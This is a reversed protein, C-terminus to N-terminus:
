IEHTIKKFLKWFENRIWREGYDPHSFSADDIIASIEDQPIKRGYEDISKRIDSELEDICELQEKSYVNQIDGTHMIDLGLTSLSDEYIRIAVSSHTSTAVSDHNVKAYAITLRYLAGLERNTIPKGDAEVTNKRVEAYYKSITNIASEDLKPNVNLKTYNVYKRITEADLLDYGNNEKTKTLVKRALQLDLDYDVKDRLLYVLDFRSLTTDPIDVQDAFSKDDRWRGYEPNAAALVSTRATMTQVLGAKAVSVSQNEMPENCAEMTDKSTKDFEDITLLGNDALVMSGAEMTFTGTLDDKVASATIGAKSTGAGNSKIAKPAVRRILELIRSKGIGPEGLLLIHINHRETSIDVIDDHSSRDGEFLQLVIGEKVEKYGYVTPLISAVLREFIDEQKGLQKMYKIEDETLRLEDYNSNTPEIHYVDFKFTLEDQKGKRKKTELNFRGAVKCVDGPQLQHNPGAIYGTIEALFSRPSGGKRHELPEEM